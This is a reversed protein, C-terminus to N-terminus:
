STHSWKNIPCPHDGQQDQRTQANGTHIHDNISQVHIVERIIQANEPLIHGNTSQAHIIKRIIKGQKHTELLYTVMQQNPMSPGGSSRTKDTCKWHTHSWKNIPCPHDGQHDQRTQANEPLIHGNTSQAHIVERIIEGQKHKNLKYTVMQQNPM